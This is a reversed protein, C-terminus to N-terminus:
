RNPLVVLQGSMTPEHYECYYRFIGPDKAVFTTSGNKGQGLDLNINYPANMTFSHRDGTPAEMNYFYITVNDNQNVELTKLSFQDHPYETVNFAPLFTNFLFFFPKENQSIEQSHENVTPISISKSQNQDSTSASNKLVKSNANITNSETNNKTNSGVINLSAKMWPHLTCGYPINGKGKVIASESSEPQILGTDFSGDSATATHMTIDNNIWTIKSNDSIEAPNPDYFQKVQEAASGQAINISSIVNNTKSSSQNPTTGNENPSVPQITTQSTASSQKNSNELSVSNIFIAALASIALVIGVGFIVQSLINNL